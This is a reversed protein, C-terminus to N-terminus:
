AAVAKRARLRRQIITNCPQCTRRGAVRAHGRVCTETRRRSKNEADTVLELHDPNVCLTSVCGRAKVHDITLTEADPHDLLGALSASVRHAVYEQDGIWFLGYRGARAGPLWIWCGDKSREVKSEFRVIDDSSLPPIIRYTREVSLVEARLM